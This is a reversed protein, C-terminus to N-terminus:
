VIPHDPFAERAVNIISFLQVVTIFPPPTLCLKLPSKNQQVIIGM